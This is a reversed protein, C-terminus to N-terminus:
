RNAFYPRPRRGRSCLLRIPQLRARHARRSSTRFGPDDGGAVSCGSRNYGPVTPGATASAAPVSRSFGLARVGDVAVRVHARLVDVLVTHQVVRRLPQELGGHGVQVQAGPGVVANQLDGAGDGVQRARAIDGGVVHRFGDLVTREVPLVPALAKPGVIRSLPPPMRDLEACIDTLM